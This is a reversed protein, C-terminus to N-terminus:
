KIGHLGCNRPAFTHFFIKFFDKYDMFEALIVIKGRELHSKQYYSLM